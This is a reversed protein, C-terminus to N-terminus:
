RVTVCGRARAVSEPTHKMIATFGWASVMREILEAREPTCGDRVLILRLCADAKEQSIPGTGDTAIMSYALDHFLSADPYDYRTVGLANTTADPISLGDWSNFGAKVTWVMDSVAITHDHQLTWVDNSITYAPPNPTSKDQPAAFYVSAILGASGLTIWLGRKIKQWTTM